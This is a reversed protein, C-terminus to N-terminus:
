RGEHADILRQRSAILERNATRLALALEPLDSWDHKTMPDPQGKLANAVGTLLEAMRGRLADSEEEAERLRDVEALLADLSTRGAHGKHIWLFLDDRIAALEAETM